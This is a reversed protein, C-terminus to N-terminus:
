GRAAASCSDPDPLSTGDSLHAEQPPMGPSVLHISGSARASAM